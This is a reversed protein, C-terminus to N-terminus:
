SWVTVIKYVAPVVWVACMVCVTLIANSANDVRAVSLVGDICSLHTVYDVQVATVTQVAFATRFINFNRDTIVIHVAPIAFNGPRRPSASPSSTAQKFRVTLAAQVTGTAYALFGTRNTNM